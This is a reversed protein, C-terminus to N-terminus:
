TLEMIGVSQAVAGPNYGYVAGSTELEATMGPSLEIGRAAGALSDGIRIIQANASLNSILIKKRAGAAKILTTAGAALPVDPTTPNDTAAVINANVNGSIANWDIPQRSIAVQVNQAVASTIKVKGFSILPADKGLERPFFSMAFGTTVGECIGMSTGNEDFFEINVASTVSLLRLFRGGPLSKTEGAGFAYNFVKALM